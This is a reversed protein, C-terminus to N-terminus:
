PVQRLTYYAEAPFLPRGDASVNDVRVEYVHGPRMADLHLVVRRADPLVEVKKVHGAREDTNEGGYAPTSIRRYSLVSYRKAQAARKADVEGTFEISFGDSTARVERIGVPVDGTFKMRVISGTNQGGGWGSDRMNGVYLDGDPAIDAVIPGEFTPEGPAPEVSMPYAAGQYTDGVPELTMRILRLTTYECGVLHGEFPGYLDRGLQKRVAEPTYLFCLGNVSRTWPHPLEVAPSDFPPKFEPRVDRKNIFGYRRGPLLNNIENYPNYNGQNDSAFIAGDENIAIGMPFRLGASIPEVDFRRPNDPTAKRPVIRVATGRMRAAAEEREDQQCPFGVVYNGQPDRPLGVAWDHYDNTMGWGDAVIESREAFADGDDDHLRVLGYKCIVDVTDDNNTAVGYPAALDDSIPKLTDELGDGDTDRSVCVRGKLSSLVLSGDKRWAFGTPMEEMPLSLQTSEWGPAVNLVKAPMNPLPPLTNPFQDVSLSVCYELECHNSEATLYMALVGSKDMLAGSHRLGDIARVRCSRSSKSPDAHKLFERFENPTSFPKVGDDAWPGIGIYPTVAVRLKQGPALGRVEVRRRFGTQRDEVPAVSFTQRVTIHTAHETEKTPFSVRFEVAIEDGVHEIRDLVARTQGEVSPSVFEDGLLLAMESLIGDSTETSHFLPEGGITWYWAKGRTREMATDGIWWQALRGTELDFMINHRNPLGIVIPRVFVDKDVEFVDTVVHAREKVGPVNKSRVIRVPGPPPPNFGPTNLTKWVAALQANVNDGLVGHVPIQIAPMEMRPVIRAPNRTWRDFWPRRIREGLMTLDTGHANLAVKQPEAYGIKHCSTCGFGDATVLRRAALMQAQDDASEAKSTKLEPIRDHDIFFSEIAHMEDSALDFKPMRISLWPRLPAHKLLIAAELAQDHLKDGVGSLSPPAMAPLLTALEPDAAVVKDLRDVIGAGLDRSHCALCNRETLVYQGDVSNRGQRRVDLVYRRVAEGQAKTLGYGPRHTKADPAGLCGHDWRSSENLPTRLATQRPGDEPLQHCQGCRNSQVLEKGRAITDRDNRLKKSKEIEESSVLTALYTSLDAWELPDLKFVPMRHARNLQAPDTLWLAFFDDPRKQAIHTLDGGGFLTQAGRTDLRHCAVCGLTNVLREGAAVDPKTRGKKKAKKGDPSPPPPGVMSPDFKV